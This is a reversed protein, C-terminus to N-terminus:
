YIKLLECVAQVWSAVRYITHDMVRSLVPDVLAPQQPDHGVLNQIDGFILVGYYRQTVQEQTHGGEYHLIKEKLKLQIEQTETQAM